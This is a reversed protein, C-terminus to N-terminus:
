RGTSQLSALMIALFLFISLGMGGLALFSWGFMRSDYKRTWRFGQFVIVGCGIPIAVFIVQFIIASLEVDSM